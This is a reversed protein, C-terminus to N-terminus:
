KCACVECGKDFIVLWRGDAERRWVSNFTGIRKGTPDQVPGSSWALRGSPLVEVSEPKWSFPAATSDFFPRWAEVVATKGRTTGSSGYFVADPAVHTAFANIDRRAMSAAFSSEAAMVQRALDPNAAQAVLAAPTFGALLSVLGILPKM